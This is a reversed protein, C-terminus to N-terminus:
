DVEEDKSVQGYTYVQKHLENYIKTLEKCAKWEGSQTYASEAQKLAPFLLEVQQKTLEVEIM